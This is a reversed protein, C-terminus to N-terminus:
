FYDITFRVGLVSPHSYMENTRQNTREAKMGLRITMRGKVSYQSKYSHFYTSGFSIFLFYNRFLLTFHIEFWIGKLITLRMLNELIVRTKKLKDKIKHSNYISPQIFSYLSTPNLTAALCVYFIAWCHMWWSFSPFM